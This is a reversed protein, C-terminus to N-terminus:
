GQGRAEENNPKIEFLVLADTDTSDPKRGPLTSSPPEAQAVLAAGLVLLLGAM